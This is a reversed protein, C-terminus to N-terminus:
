HAAYVREKIYTVAEEVTAFIADAKINTFGMLAGSARRPAVLVIPISAQKALAMEWWTGDSPTDGTLVLLYNSRLVDREDKEVFQAMTERAYDIPVIAGQPHKDLGEDAAPDIYDLGATTCLQIAHKRESQVQPIPRGNMGGSLYVLKGNTINAQQSISM